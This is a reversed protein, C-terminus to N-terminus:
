LLQMVVSGAKHAFMMTMICCRQADQRFAHLMGHCRVVLSADQLLEAIAQQTSDDVALQSLTQLARRQEAQDSSKLQQVCDLEIQQNVSLGLSNYEDRLQAAAEFNQLAVADATRKKIDLAREWSTASSDLPQARAFKRKPPPQRPALMTLWQRQRCVKCDGVPRHMRNILVDSNQLPAKLSM